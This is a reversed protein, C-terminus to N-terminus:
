GTEVHNNSSDIVRTKSDCYMSTNRKHILIHRNLHNSSETFDPHKSVIHFDLEMESELATNCHACKIPTKATECPKNLDRTSIIKYTCKTCKHVNRNVSANAAIGSHKVMLHKRFCGNNTTKYTCQICEHIKTTISSICNPHKRIIHEDLRSKRKFLTNCYSCTKLYDAATEPHKLLHLRLNSSITTKFTCM